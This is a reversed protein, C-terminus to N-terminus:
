PFYLAHRGSRRCGGAEQPGAAPRPGRTWCPGTARRLPRKSARLGAAGAPRVRGYVELLRGVRCPQDAPRPPHRVARRGSPTSTATSCRTWMDGPEIVTCPMVARDDQGAPWALVDAAVLKLRADNQTASRASEATQPDDLLVFDPRVMEGTTLTKLSRPHGGRDPGSASILVGATPVMGDDRLRWGAALEGAAASHACSGTPGGVRDPTSEGPVDPRDGPQRDRGPVPGALLDRPLRRRVRRPVPDLIRLTDLTECAKDDTAGIVFPYRCHAYSAAWLAAMRCLTTKGSGRAMAFAFLAGGTVAEEVRAIVKLHDPSWGLNFARPNYTRLVAPPRGAGSGAPPTPSRGSERRDGAGPGVAGPQGDGDVGPTGRVAAAAAPRRRHLRRCRTPSRRGTRRGRSRSRPPAKVPKAAPKKKPKANAEAERGVEEEAEEARGRNVATSFL